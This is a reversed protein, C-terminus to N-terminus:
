PTQKDVVLKWPKQIHSPKPVRFLCAWIPPCTSASDRGGGRWWAVREEGTTPPDNKELKCFPVQTRDAKDGIQGKVLSALWQYGVTDGEGDKAAAATLQFAEGRVWGHLSVGWSSTNERGETVIFSPETGLQEPDNGYLSPYQPTGPHRLTMAPTATSDGGLLGPKYKNLYFHEIDIDRM